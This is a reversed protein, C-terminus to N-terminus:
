RVRYISHSGRGKIWLQTGIGDIDLDCWSEKGRGTLWGGVACPKHM